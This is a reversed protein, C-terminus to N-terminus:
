EGGCDCIAEEGCWCGCGSEGEEFETFEESESEVRM